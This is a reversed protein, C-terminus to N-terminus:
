VTNYNKPVAVYQHDGKKEQCGYYLGCGIVLSAGLGCLIDLLHDTSESEVGNMAHNLIFEEDEDDQEWGCVEEDEEFICTPEETSDGTGDFCEQCIDERKCRAFGQGVCRGWKKIIALDIPDSKM